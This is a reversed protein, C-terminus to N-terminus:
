TLYERTRNVVKVAGPEKKIRNEDETSRKLQNHHIAYKGDQLTARGQKVLESLKIIRHEKPKSKRKRLIFFIIIIAVIGLLIYLFVSNYNESVLNERTESLLEIVIEENPRYNELYKESLVTEGDKKVFVLLDFNSEVDVSFSVDGEGNSLGELREVGTSEGDIETFLTVQIEHNQLTQINIEVASVIQLLLIFLSITFIIKRIKM